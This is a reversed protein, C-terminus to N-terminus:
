EEKEKSLRRQTLIDSVNDYDGPDGDGVPEIIITSNYGPTEYDPIVFEVTEGQALQKIHEDTLGFELGM